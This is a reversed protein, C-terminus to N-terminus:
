CLLPEIFGHNKEPEDPASSMTARADKGVYVGSLNLCALMLRFDTNCFRPHGYIKHRDNPQVETKEGENSPNKKRKKNCGISSIANAM